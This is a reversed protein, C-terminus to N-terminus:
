KKNFPTTVHERIVAACRAALVEAFDCPLANGIMGCVHEMFPCSFVYDAPFTQLLAAERASITRNEEPHGFRGKSLTTCGATITPSVKDWSMRGYVNSFGASKDQHCTPRLRKPISSWHKGPKAHHLRSQNKSSLTRVVHWNQSQGGGNLNAETLTVPKPMGRLASAVTKWKPLQGIGTRSHTPSPLPIRFGRGALVVLRRRSQPVGFDAVQLIGWEPIYGKDEIRRMFEDFLPKGKKSLGPVNEMMVAMPQLEEVLRAMEMVLDNRPDNRRYKATLSTFGQCPPCGALLDIRGDPSFGILDDGSVTTVDQKLTHVEPHNIKFTAVAHQEVEVGAVVRFGGAKLGATLGGAGSFIDVATLARLESKRRPM